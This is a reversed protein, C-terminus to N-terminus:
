DSVRVVIFLMNFRSNFMWFYLELIYKLQKSRSFLIVGSELTPTDLTMITKETSTGKRKLLRILTALFNLWRASQIALKELFTIRAKPGLHHGCLVLCKKKVITLQFGHNVYGM